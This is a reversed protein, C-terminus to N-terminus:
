ARLLKFGRKPKVPFLVCDWDGNMGPKQGKRNRGALSPSGIEQKARSIPCPWSVKVGLLVLKMVHLRHLRVPGVSVPAGPMM